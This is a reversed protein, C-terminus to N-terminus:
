TPLYNSLITADVTVLIDDVFNPSPLLILIAGCIVTRNLPAIAAVLAPLPGLVRFAELTRAIGRKCAGKALWAGKQVQTTERSGAHLM